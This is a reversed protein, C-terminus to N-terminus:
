SPPTASGSDLLMIMKADLDWLRDGIGEGIKQLKRRVDESVKRWDGHGLFGDQRLLKLGQAFGSAMKEEGVARLGEILIVLEAESFAQSYISEFGEMDKECRAAVIYYVSREAFSRSPMQEQGIALLRNFEQVIRDTADM